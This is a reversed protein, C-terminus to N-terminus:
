QDFVQNVLPRILEWNPALVQAGETTTVPATMERRIIQSDIGGPGARLVAVGLRPWLWFPLNTDVSRLGASIVAPMRPWKLPNLLNRILAQIMMQGQTMRFFDDSGSRDRVFALAKRGTLHHRGAPYGAIPEKLEIDVGGLADVIDRFGEFRIRVYYRLDVGFNLAITRRLLQPGSGPESSEAFFHATNIRNEGVGPISVWLDRPVSILGVYPSSPLISALMITDSRGIAHVSAPDVYDVGIVVLNTRVPAFLYLGIPILIALLLLLPIICGPRLYFRKRRPPHRRPQKRRPLPHLAPPPAPRYTPPPPYSDGHILPPQPAEPARDPLEPQAPM